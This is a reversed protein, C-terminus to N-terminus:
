FLGLQCESAICVYYQGGKLTLALLPRQRSLNISDHNGCDASRDHRHVKFPDAGCFNVDRTALNINQFKLIVTSLFYQKTCCPM